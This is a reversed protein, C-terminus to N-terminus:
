KQIVMEAANINEYKLFKPKDHLKKKIESNIKTIKKIDM